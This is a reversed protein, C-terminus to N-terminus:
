LLNRQVTYNDNNRNHLVCCCCCIYTTTYYVVVVYYFLLSISLFKCYFSICSQGAWKSLELHCLVYLSLLYIFSCLIYLQIGNGPKAESQYQPPTFRVTCYERERYIYVGSMASCTATFYFKNEEWYTKIYIYIYIGKYINVIPRNM